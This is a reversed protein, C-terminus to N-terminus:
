ASIAAETSRRVFQVGARKRLYIRLRDDESLLAARLQLIAEAGDPDDWFMETGKVRNNMQKVLSETSASTIPLGMQRYRPYDMKAQNNTLYRIADAIPKHPDDDSTCSEIEIGREQCNHRLEVIVEEVKGGWTWQILKTYLAWADNDNTFLTQSASYVYQIAHIFDLIPIFTSFHEKWITWNWNLGDAIFARRRAEYLGRRKAEREMTVGFEDSNTLSAQVTRLIRRPGKYAISRGSKQKVTLEFAPKEVIKSVKEVTQFSTPLTPCADNGAVYDANDAMREFSAIKDERWGNEGSPIVGRGNGSERTRIRGGDCSVVAIEGVVAEGESTESRHLKALELGVEKALRRITSRSLKFGLVEEMTKEARQFSRVEAALYVAARIM